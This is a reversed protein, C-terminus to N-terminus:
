ESLEYFRLLSYALSGTGSGFDAFLLTYIGVTVWRNPYVSM